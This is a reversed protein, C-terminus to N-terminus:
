SLKPDARCVAEGERVLLMYFPFVRRFPELSGGTNGRASLRLTPDPRDPQPVSRLTANVAYPMAGEAREFRGFFEVGDAHPAGADLRWATRGCDKGNKVEIGCWGDGCPVLDYTLRCSGGACARKSEDVVQTWRGSLSSAQLEATAPPAAM